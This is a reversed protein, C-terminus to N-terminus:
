KGLLSMPDLNIADKLEDLLTKFPTIEVNILEDDYDDEGNQYQQFTLVVKKDEIKHIDKFGYESYVREIKNAGNCKNLYYAEDRIGSIREELMSLKSM